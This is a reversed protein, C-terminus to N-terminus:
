YKKIVELIINAEEESLSTDVFIKNVEEKDKPLFDILKIIDEERIKYNDINKLDSKLKDVKDPSINSFKKLYEKLEKREDLKEVIQKVEAITIPKKSIIM